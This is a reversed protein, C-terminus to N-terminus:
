ADLSEWRPTGQGREVEMADDISGRLGARIVDSAVLPNCEDGCTFVDVFAYALGPYTHISIHSEALIIVVSVGDPKFRHHFRRLITAGAARAGKQLLTVLAIEDDLIEPDADRVDLLVHRGRAPHAIM